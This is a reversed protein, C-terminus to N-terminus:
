VPVISFAGLTFAGTYVSRGSVSQSIVGDEMFYEKMETAIFRIYRHKSLHKLTDVEGYWVCKGDKILLVKQFFEEIYEFQHSSLLIIKDKQRLEEIVEKFKEANIADLGSLPEDLVIVAPDHILACILQVKQQNGKSLERIRSEYLDQIDLREIWYNMATETENRSMKRLEAILSIQEYVRLDKYLCREEPLYGIRSVDEESIPHGQFLVEGQTAITIRNIIRILTSKGAGNPGLLGFIKGEPIDLSVDELAVKPGFTKTVHKM